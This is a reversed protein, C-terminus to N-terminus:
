RHNRKDENEKEEKAIIAFDEATLPVDATALEIIRRLEDQRTREHRCALIDVRRAVELPVNVTLVKKHIDRMNSM